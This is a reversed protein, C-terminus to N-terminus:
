CAHGIERYVREPITHAGVRTVGVQQVPNPQRLRLLDGSTGFPRAHSSFWLSACVKSTQAGTLTSPPQAGTEVSNMDGETVVCHGCTM